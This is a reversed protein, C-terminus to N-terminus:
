QISKASSNSGSVPRLVIVPIERTTSKRYDDFFPARNVFEAWLRERETSQAVSAEVEIVAGPVFIKANPHSRLNTYWAPHSERGANSAAVVYNRGDVLYMVPTERVKGSKRGVTAIVLVSMGRMTSMWKGNSRKFLFVQLRTFRRLLWSTM